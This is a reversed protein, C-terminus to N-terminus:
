VVLTKMIEKIMQIYGIVDDTSQQKENAVEVTIGNNYLEELTKCLTWPSRSIRDFSTVIVKSINKNKKVFDLMSNLSLEKVFDDQKGGLVSVVKYGKNKAHVACTKIQTTLADKDISNISVSNWIICENTNRKKFKKM